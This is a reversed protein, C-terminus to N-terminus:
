TLSAMSKGKPITETIKVVPPPINVASSLKLLDGELLHVTGAIGGHDSL